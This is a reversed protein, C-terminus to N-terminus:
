LSKETKKDDTDTLIKINKDTLNYLRECELAIRNLAIFKHKFLEKIDRQCSPCIEHIEPIGYRYMYTTEAKTPDIETTIDKWIHVEGKLPASCFDCYHIEV